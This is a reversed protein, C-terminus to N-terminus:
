SVVSQYYRDATLGLGSPPVSTVHPDQVDKHTVYSLNELTNCALTYILIAM